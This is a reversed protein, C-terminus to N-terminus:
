APPAGAREAAGAVLAYNAFQLRIREASRGDRPRLRVRLYSGEREIRCEAAEAFAAATREVAGPPYFDVHLALEAEGTASGAPGGRGAGSM